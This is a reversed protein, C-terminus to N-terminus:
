TSTTLASYSRPPPFFLLHSAPSYDATRVGMGKARRAGTGVRGSLRRRSRCGGTRLRRAAHPLHRLRRGRHDVDLERGCALEQDRVEDRRAAPRRLLASAPASEASVLPQRRSEGCRRSTFDVTLDLFPGNRFKERLPGDGVSRSVVTLRLPVTVNTAYMCVSM